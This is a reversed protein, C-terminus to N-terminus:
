EIWSTSTCAQMGEAWTHDFKIDGIDGCKKFWAGGRACCSLKGSKKAAACKACGNRASIGTLSTTTPTETLCFTITLTVCICPTASVLSIYVRQQAYVTMSCYTM